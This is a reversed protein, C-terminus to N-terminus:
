PVYPIASTSTAIALKRQDLMHQVSRALRSPEATDRTVPGLHVDKLPVSRYIGQSYYPLKVYPLVRAGDTRYHVTVPNSAARRSYILRFEQEESFAPHKFFPLIIEIARSVEERVVNQLYDSPKGKLATAVIRIFEAVIWNALSRQGEDEYVVWGAAMATDMQELSARSFGLCCGKGGDGYARWQNLDDQKATFCAHFVDDGTADELLQLILLRAKPVVPDARKPAFADAASRLFKKGHTFELIDIMHPAATAWLAKPLTPGGQESLVPEGDSITLM